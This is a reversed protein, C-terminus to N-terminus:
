SPDSFLVVLRCGNMSSVDHSKGRAFRRTGFRRVKVGDVTCEGALVWIQEVVNHDHIGFNSNPRMEVDWISLDENHLELHYCDIKDNIVMADEPTKAFPVAKLSDYSVHGGQSLGKQAERALSILSSAQGKTLIPETKFLREFLKMM